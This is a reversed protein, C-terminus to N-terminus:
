NESSLFARQVVYFLLSCFVSVPEWLLWIWRTWRSRKSSLLELAPSFCSFFLVPILSKHIVVSCHRCYLVQMSQLGSNQPGIRALAM